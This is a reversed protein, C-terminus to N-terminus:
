GRVSNSIIWVAPIVFASYTMFMGIAKPAPNKVYLISLAHTVRGLVLLGGVFWVIGSSAGGNEILALMILCM